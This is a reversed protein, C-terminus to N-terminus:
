CSSTKGHQVQVWKAFAFNVDIIEIDIGGFLILLIYSHFQDRWVFSHSCIAIKGLLELKNVLCILQIM